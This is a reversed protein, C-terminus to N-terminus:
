DNPGIVGYARGMWYAFLYDAASWAVGGGEGDLAPFPNNKWYYNGLQTEFYPPAVIARARSRSQVWDRKWPLEPYPSVSVDARLVHHTSLLPRPFPMERLVWVAGSHDYASWPWPLKALGAAALDHTARRVKRQRQAARRIGLKDTLASLRKGHLEALRARVLLTHLELQAGSWDSVGYYYYGAAHAVTYLNLFPNKRIRHYRDREPGAGRIASVVGATNQENYKGDRVVSSHRWLSSLVRAMDLSQPDGAPLAEIAAIGTVLLGKLMDNNGGEMWDVGTHPGQGRRWLGAPAASTSARLTRAFEGPQGTIDVLQVEAATIRRVNQLAAPEGTVKYRWAQSLAYLGTWEASDGDPVFGGGPVVGALMGADLFRQPVEHDAEIAKQRLTKGFANAKVAAEALSLPDVLRQVVRLLHPRQRHLAFDTADHVYVHIGAVFDPHQLYPRVWATQRFTSFVANLLQRLWRPPARHTAARVRQSRWISQAPPPGQYTWRESPPVFRPGQGQYGGQLDHAGASSFAGQITMPVGDAVARTVGAGRSAWGMRDLQLTVQLGTATDRASGTWVTSVPRGQHMFTAYEIERVFTYGQASRRLEVRGSYAGRGPETGNVAYLGDRAQASGSLPCVLLALLVPLLSRM